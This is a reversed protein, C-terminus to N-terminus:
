PRGRMREKQFVGLLSNLFTLTNGSTTQNCPQDCSFYQCKSNKLAGVTKMVRSFVLSFSTQVTTNAIQALGEQFCPTSCSDSPIPLCLCSTVNGSCSCKSLPDKQLKDILYSVDKIGVFTLCGQDAVSCLLLASALVVTLLM